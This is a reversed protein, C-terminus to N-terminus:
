SMKERGGVAAAGSRRLRARVKPRRTEYNRLVFCLRARERGRKEKERRWDRDRGGEVETRHSRSPFLFSPSSVAGRSIIGCFLCPAGRDEAAASGLRDLIIPPNKRISPPFLLRTPSLSLESIGRPGLSRFIPSFPKKEEAIPTSVSALCRSWLDQLERGGKRGSWIEEPRRSRRRPFTAERM